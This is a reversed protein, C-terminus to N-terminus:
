KEPDTLEKPKEETKETPAVAQEKADQKRASVILPKAVTRGDPLIEPLAILNLEYRGLLIKLDKNFEQMREPLDKENAPLQSKDLEKSKQETM